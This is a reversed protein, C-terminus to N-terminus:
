RGLISGCIILRTQYQWAQRIESVKARFISHGGTFGVRQALTPAGMRPYLTLIRTMEEVYPDVISGRPKAPYRRPVDSAVARTVTERAVGLRAAIERVSLGEAQHLRRIEAWVSVEIM